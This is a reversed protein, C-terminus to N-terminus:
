AITVVEYEQTSRFIRTAEDGEYRDFENVLTCVQVPGGSGRWDSISAEIAALVARAETYTNAYGDYQIRTTVHASVADLAQQGVRSVRQYRVFPYAVGQPAVLPLLRPGILATLATDAALRVYLLEDATM